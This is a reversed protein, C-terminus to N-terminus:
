CTKSLQSQCLFCFALNKGENYLTVMYAHSDFWSANLGQRSLWMKVESRVVRVSISRVVRFTYCIVRFISRVPSTLLM